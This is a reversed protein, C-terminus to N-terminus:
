GWHPTGCAPREFTVRLERPDLEDDVEPDLHMHPDERWAVIDGLELSARRSCEREHVLGLAEHNTLYSSTPQRIVLAIAVCHREGM